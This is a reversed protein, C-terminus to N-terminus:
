RLGDTVKLFGETEM